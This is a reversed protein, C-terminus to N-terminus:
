EDVIVEEIVTAEVEAVIDDKHTPNWVRDDNKFNSSGFGSQLGDYFMKGLELVWSDM